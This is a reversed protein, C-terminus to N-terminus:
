YVFLRFSFRIADIRKILRAFCHRSVYQAVFDHCAGEKYLTRAM